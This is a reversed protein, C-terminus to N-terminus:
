CVCEHSERDMQLHLYPTTHNTHAPLKDDAMLQPGGRM